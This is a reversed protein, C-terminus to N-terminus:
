TDLSSTESVVEDLGDEHPGIDFIKYPRITDLTHNLHAALVLILDWSYMNPKDRSFLDM